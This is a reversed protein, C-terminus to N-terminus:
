RQLLRQKLAAVPKFKLKLARTKEAKFASLMFISSDSTFIPNTKKYLVKGKRSQHARIHIVHCM